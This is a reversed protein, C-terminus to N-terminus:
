SKQDVRETFYVRGGWYLQKDMDKFSFHNSHHIFEDAAKIKLM